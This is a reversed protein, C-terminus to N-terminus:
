RIPDGFPVSRTCPLSLAAYAPTLPRRLRTRRHAGRGPRRPHAAGPPPREARGARRPVPPCGQHARGPRSPDRRGARGDAHRRSRRLRGQCALRRSAARVRHGATAARAPDPELLIGTEEVCERVATHLPSADTFEVDGGAWQLGKALDTARLMVALGDETTFFISGWMPAAPITPLYAPLPLHGPLAPPPATHRRILEAEHAAVSKPVEAPLVWRHDDHEASRRVEQAHDLHAALVFARTRAGRSNTYDEHGLYATVRAGTLGAEEDLERQGAAVVNEGTETGGGPLEWLGAQLTGRARRLLLVRGDPDTLLVSASTREIGEARAQSLPDFLLLTTTM